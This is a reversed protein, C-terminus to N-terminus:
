SRSTEPRKNGSRGLGNGRGSEAIIPRSWDYHLMCPMEKMLSRFKPELNMLESSSTRGSKPVPVGYIVHWKGSLGEHWIKDFAKAIDLFLIGTAVHKEFGSLILETVRLM